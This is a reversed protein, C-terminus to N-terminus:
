AGARRGLEEMVIAKVRTRDLKGAATKPLAQAYLVRDPWREQPLWSQCHRALAEHQAQGRPVVLAVLEDQPMRATTLRPIGVVAVEAVTPHRAIVAEVEAAFIEVGNRNIIEISRGKLFIFGADDFHAYDELYFWGDHFQEAGAPDIDGGFGRGETGRCRLRGVTGPPLSRGADDVVQVELFSPPRGVSAPRARMEKPSLVAITGIGSAGYADYFNPSVRDLMALKEEPYLFGGASVLARLRPYLSGSQPACSLLVRCLASTVLCQANDWAGIARVLEITNLYEPLITIPGGIFLHSIMCRFFMAYAISATLLFNVPRASSFVDSDAFLETYARIREFHQRHTTLIDKPLGTTGSTMTITFVSEGDDSHRRDGHSEAVLSRWGADVKISRIGAVPSAVPESFIRGITLKELLDPNPPKRYDYPIEMTTAGLRLLGLLLIFHDISNVLNIAVRDGARIGTSDLHMAAKGVLTALEGYSLTEPPQIFAPADPRKAAWYFIPDTINQWNRDM